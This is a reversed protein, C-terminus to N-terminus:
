RKPENAFGRDQLYIATNGLFFEAERLEPIAPHKNDGQKWEGGLGADLIVKRKDLISKLAYMIGERSNKLGLKQWNPIFTM